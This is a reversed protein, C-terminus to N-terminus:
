TNKWVFSLCLGFLYCVFLVVTRAHRIDCIPIALTPLADHILRYYSCLDIFRQLRPNPFGKVCQFGRANSESVERGAWYARQDAVM